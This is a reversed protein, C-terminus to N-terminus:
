ADSSSGMMALSIHQNQLFFPAPDVGKMTVMDITEALLIM